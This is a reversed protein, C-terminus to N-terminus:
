FACEYSRFGSTLMATGDPGVAYGELGPTEEILYIGEDGMAYAATAFRDAEYIDDAVVSLSVPGGPRREAPSHPDYIHEGRIYNGSTAVAGGALSLVKIVEKPAFPNRIGVRWPGEPGEGATQIDGGAEICFRAFGMSSLLQAAGRIAWGKVIGSPDIRGDPRRIDFAGYTERTTTAALDLVEAMEASLASTAIDGGDYLRLESEARFPSFRRDIASFHDFVAGFATANPAQPIDITIPMGMLLRTQRM